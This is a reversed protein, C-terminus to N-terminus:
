DKSLGWIIPIGNIVVSLLALTTAVRVPAYHGAEVIYSALAAVRLLAVRYFERSLLLEHYVGSKAFRGIM